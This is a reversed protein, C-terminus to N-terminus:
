AGRQDRLFVNALHVAAVATDATQWAGLSRALAPNGVFPPGGVLLPRPAADQERLAHVLGTVRSLYAPMTVSVAVLDADVARVLAVLAELPVDAGLYQVIWGAREFADAVMRCGLAHQEGAICGIVLTCGTAPLRPAHHHVETLDREIIATARHEAAVSIRGAHWQAGVAQAAPRLVDEAVSEATLGQQRAALLVAVAADGDGALLAALYRAYIAPVAAGVMPDDTTPTPAAVFTGRGHRRELLGAQELRVLAQRITGRAVGLTAALQHEAPLQEGVRLRGATIAAQVLSVVQEHLPIGSRRNLAEPPVPFPEM